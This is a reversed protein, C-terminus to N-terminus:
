SMDSSCMNKGEAADEDVDEGDEGLDDPHLDVDELEEEQDASRHIDAQIEISAAATTVSGSVDLSIPRETSRGCCGGLTFYERNNYSTREAQIYQGKLVM